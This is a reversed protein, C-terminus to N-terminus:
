MKEYIEVMKKVDDGIERRLSEPELVEAHSGYGMIWRKVEGVGGVTLRLIVGGCPLEEIRQNPHWERERIWRAQYEDFKIVIEQPATGREALFGQALYAELSFSPPIRFTSRLLEHAKIRSVLFDRPERRTHCYAILYWEGNINHLHYPDVTRTNTQGRSASYYAMEVSRKSLIANHLEILVDPDIKTKGGGTFAFASTDRQADDGAQEPLHQTIKELAIRLPIEFAAGLYRKILREGLFLADIEETELMIAPLFYTPETYHWGGNTRSHEIPADLEDIMFRKDDYVVRPSRLEFHEMVTRANPYKGARIQEDIWFIRRMKSSM